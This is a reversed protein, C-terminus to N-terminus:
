FLKHQRPDDFVRGEHRALWRGVSVNSAHLKRAIEAKSLGEVEALYQAIWPKATPVRAQLRDRIAALAHLGQLGIVDVAMSNGKPDKAIYFDAGGFALLFKVAVEAGLATVYPEIHAPPRPINLRQATM